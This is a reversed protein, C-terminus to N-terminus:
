ETVERGGFYMTVSLAEDDPVWMLKADPMNDPPELEYRDFDVVLPVGDPDWSQINVTFLPPLTM